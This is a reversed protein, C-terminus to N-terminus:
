IGAMAPTILNPMKIYTRIQRWLNYKWQEIEVGVLIRANTQMMEIYTTANPVSEPIYKEISRTFVGGVNIWTPDDRCMISIAIGIDWAFGSTHECKWIVPAEDCILDNFSLSTQGLRRLHYDGLMTDARYNFGVQASFKSTYFQFVEPALPRTPHYTTIVEAPVTLVQGPKENFGAITYADSLAYVTTNDALKQLYYEDGPPLWGPFRYQINKTTKFSKALVSDSIARRTELMKLHDLQRVEYEEGSGPTPAVYGSADKVTKTVAVMEQTDPDQVYDTFTQWSDVRFTTRLKKGMSIKKDQIGIDLYSTTPSDNTGVIEVKKYLRSAQVSPIWDRMTIQEPGDPTLVAVKSGLIRTSTEGVASFGDLDEPGPVDITPAGTAAYVPPTPDNDAYVTAGLLTKGVFAAQFNADSSGSPHTITLVNALYFINWEPLMLNFYAAIQTFAADITAEPPIQWSYPRLETPETVASTVVCRAHSTGSDIDLQFNLDAPDEMLSLNYAHTAPTGDGPGTYLSSRVKTIEIDLGDYQPSAQEFSKVEPTTELTEVLMKEHYADLRQRDASLLNTTETPLATNVAVIEITQKVETGDDLTRVKLTAEAEAAIETWRQRSMASNRENYVYANLVGFAGMDPVSGQPLQEEFTSMAGGVEPSFDRKEVLVAANRQSSPTLYITDRNAM